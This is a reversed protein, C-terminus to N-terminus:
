GSPPSGGGVPTIEYMWIERPRPGAGKPRHGYTRAPNHEDRIVVHALQRHAVGSGEVIEPSATMVVLRRGSRRWGRAFGALDVKTGSRLKAAPVGCFARVPAPLELDLLLGGVVLVAADPGAADCLERVARLAGAQARATVFPGAAVSSPIAVALALGLTVARWVAAHPRRLNWCASLAVAIAIALGPLVVAVYRRMAWPQDATINPRAIFFVAVPVAVVLIATAARHGRLARWLLVLIGIVALAVAVVGFYEAFWRFSWRWHWENISQRVAKTADEGREVAPLESDDGLRWTWAWICTAALAAAVAGFVLRSRAVRGAFAPWWWRTGVLVIGAVIAAALGALLQRYEDDFSNIYDASLRRTVLLGLGTTAVLAVAFAPV